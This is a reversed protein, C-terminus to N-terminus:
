RPRILFIPIAVRRMVKDAVSGFAWRSLGSRGHTSMLILDFDNNNAYDVVYNAPTGEGAKAMLVVSNVNLGANRLRKEVKSLYQQASRKCRNVHDQWNLPIESLYYAPILSVECVNLLIVECKEAGQSKALEMVHPLISEAAESRDLPVLMKKYM